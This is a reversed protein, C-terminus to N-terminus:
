AAGTLKQNLNGYAVAMWSEMFKKLFNKRGFKLRWQMIHVLRYHKSM